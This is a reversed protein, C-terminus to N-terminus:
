LTNNGFRGGGQRPLRDTTYDTGGDDQAPPPDPTPVPVNFDVSTANVPGVTNLLNAGKQSVMWYYRKKGTQGVDDVWQNSNGVDILVAESINPTDSAWLYWKDADDVTWQVLISYAKGTARLNTVGIPPTASDLVTRRLDQLLRRVEPWDFNLPIERIM